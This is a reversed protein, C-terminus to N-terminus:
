LFSRFCGNSHDISFIIISLSKFKWSSNSSYKMLTTRFFHFQKRNIDENIAQSLAHAHRLFTVAACFNCNVVNSLWPLQLQLRLHLGPQKKSVYLLWNLVDVLFDLNKVGGRDVHSPGGRLRGRTTLM